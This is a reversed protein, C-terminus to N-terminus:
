EEEPIYKDQTNGLAHRAARRAAVMTALACNVPTALATTLAAPLAVEFVTPYTFFMSLLHVCVVATGPCLLLHSSYCGLPLSGATQRTHGYKFLRLCKPSM